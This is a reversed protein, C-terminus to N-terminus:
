SKNENNFIELYKYFDPLFIEPKEKLLKGLEGRSFWQIKEVERDEKKFPFDHRITTTFWQVFYEHNSSKRLKPGLSLKMGTLGIEEEAEKIINDEYSEGEEVTGAVAPGWLGPHNKKNLGRQALLINGDKDTVWLGSVRSIESPLREQKDKYDILIDNEDVIPLRM